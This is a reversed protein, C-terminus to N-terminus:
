KIFEFNNSDLQSAEVDGSSIIYVCEAPCVMYHCGSYWGDSLVFFDKLLLKELM